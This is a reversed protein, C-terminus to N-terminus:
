KKEDFYKRNSKGEVVKFGGWQKGKLAQETAYDWIEDVWKKIDPIKALMSEIESDSLLPPM